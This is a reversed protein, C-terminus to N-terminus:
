SKGGGRALGKSALRLGRDRARYKVYLQACERAVAKDQRVRSSEALVFARRACRAWVGPRRSLPTATRGKATM